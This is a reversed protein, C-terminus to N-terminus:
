INNWVHTRADDMGRHVPHSEDVICSTEAIM